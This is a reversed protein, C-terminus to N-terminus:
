KSLLERYKAFILEEENGEFIPTKNIYKSVNNFTDNNICIVSAKRGNTAIYVDFNYADLVYSKPILLRICIYNRFRFLAISEHYTDNTLTESTIPLSYVELNETQPIAFIM